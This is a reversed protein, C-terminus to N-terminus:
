LLEKGDNGAVMRSEESTFAAVRFCRILMVPTSL